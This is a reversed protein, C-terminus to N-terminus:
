DDSPTWELVGSESISSKSSDSSPEFGALPLSRSRVLKVETRPYMSVSSSDAVKAAAHRKRRDKRSEKFPTHAGPLRSHRSRRAVLSLILLLLVGISFGAIRQELDFKKFEGGAAEVLDTAGGLADDVADDVLAAGPSSNVERPRIPITINRIELGDVGFVVVRFTDAVTQPTSISILLDSHDSSSGSPLLHLSGNFPTVLISDSVNAEVTLYLHQPTPNGISCTVTANLGADLYLTSPSCGLTLVAVHKSQVQPWYDVQTAGQASSDGWGDNDHDAHQTPNRWFMDAGDESTWGDSPDSWGDEDYDPCGHRDETSAGFVNPCDDQEDAFGDGDADPGAATVVPILCLILFAVITTIRGANM